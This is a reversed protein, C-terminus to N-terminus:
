GPSKGIVAKAVLFLGLGSLAGALAMVTLLEPSARLRSWVEAWYAPGSLAPNMGWTLLVYGYVALFAGFM